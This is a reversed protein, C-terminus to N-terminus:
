VLQEHFFRTLLGSYDLDFPRAEERWPKAPQDCFALVRLCCTNITLLVFILEFLRQPWIVMEKSSEARPCDQSRPMATPQHFCLFDWRKVKISIGEVRFWDMTRRWQRYRGEVVYGRSCQEVTTYPFLIALLM